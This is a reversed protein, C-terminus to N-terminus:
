VVSKRDLYVASGVGVCSDAISTRLTNSTYKSNLKMGRDNMIQEAASSYSAEVQGNRLSDLWSQIEPEARFDAGKASTERLVRLVAKGVSKLLRTVSGLPAQSSLAWRSVSEAMWEEFSASYNYSSSSLDDTRLPSNLTTKYNNTGRDGELRFRRYAAFIKNMVALPSNVFRSFSIAHGFEHAVAHLTEQPSFYMPSTKDKVDMIVIAHVGEGVALYRANPSPM